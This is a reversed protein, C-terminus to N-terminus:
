LSVINILTSIMEVHDLLYKKVNEMGSNEKLYHIGEATIEIDSLDNLMMYQNGWAKSVYVEDILNEESMLKLVGDAFSDYKIACKFETENFLITGKFIAYYYLLIKFVVVDYDDKAM